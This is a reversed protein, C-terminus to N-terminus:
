RAVVPALATRPAAGGQPVRPSPRESDPPPTEREPAAAPMTDSPEYTVEVIQGPVVLEQGVTIVTAVEPLGTVWVGDVDDRIVDVRHYEVTNGTGVTRVGIHGEDDLSFVAPSVKQALVTETVVRIQTTIGSRLTFDANPVEVEIPYTRTAADSQQGIFRVTGTVVHGDQLVGEAPGGVTLRPVDRESVQGVLMMPNMDVLAVCATGPTVYDGLEVQVDEVLAPFPARITTREVDLTRRTVQAEAAAVRAKAQAV